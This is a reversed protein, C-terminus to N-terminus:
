KIECNEKYQKIIFEDQIKKIDVKPAICIYEKEDKINSFFHDNLISMDGTAKIYGCIFSIANKADGIDAYFTAKEKLLQANEFKAETLNCDLFQNTFVQSESLAIPSNNESGNILEYRTALNCSLINILLVTPAIIYKLCTNRNIRM